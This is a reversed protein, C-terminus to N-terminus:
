LEPIGWIKISDDTCYTAVFERDRSIAISGIPATHGRFRSVERDIELDCIVLDGNAEGYALIRGDPSLISADTASTTYLILDTLLEWVCIRDDRLGCCIITGDSRVAVSKLILPPLGELTQIIEYTELDWAQLISYRSYHSYHAILTKGDPTFLLPRIIEDKEGISPFIWHPPRLFQREFKYDIHCVGTEYDVVRLEGDRSDCHGIAILSRETPCVTFALYNASFFYKWGSMHDLSTTLDDSKYFSFSDQYTDIAIKGQQGLGFEHTYRESSRHVKGTELDWCYIYSCKYTLCWYCFLRNCYDAIGFYQPLDRLESSTAPYDYHTLNFDQLTHLCRMRDFPLHNWLASQAADTNLNSLQHFASQRIERRPDNLCEITSDIDINEVQPDIEM